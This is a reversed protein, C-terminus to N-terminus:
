LPASKDASQDARRATTTRWRHLEICAAVVGGGIAGYLHADVIVPLEGALPLAGQLQEHALKGVVVASLVSAFLRSETRWWAVAGAALVGHLVGSAGVYWDLQPELLLFGVDIAVMSAVIVLIWKPISYTRSFLFAMLVAGSMNLALHRLDFHVLHATLLRLYDGALISRREYRLAERAGEGGLWLLVMAALALGVLWWGVGPIRKKPLFNDPLPLGHIRKTIIPATM